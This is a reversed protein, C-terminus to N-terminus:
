EGHEGLDGDGAGIGVGEVLGEDGSFGLGGAGTAFGETFVEVAEELLVAGGGVGFGADEPVEFLEEDVAVAFDCNAEGGLDKRVVGSDYGCDFGGEVGLGPVLVCGSWFVVQTRENGM